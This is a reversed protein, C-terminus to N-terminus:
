ENPAQEKILAHLFRFLQRAYKPATPAQPQRLCNRILQRLQQRDADPYHNLFESLAADGETLLRERWAEAAHQLAVAQQQPQRQRDLQQQLLEVDMQRLLKGIYQLQRKRAGNQKIRCAEDIAARLPDPLPLAQRSRADLDVLTKGLDTLEHAERKRQTKSIFPTDPM